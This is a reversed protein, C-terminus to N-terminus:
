DLTSSEIHKVTQNFFLTLLTAKLTGLGGEHRSTHLPQPAHWWRAALCQQHLMDWLLMAGVAAQHRIEVGDEAAGHHLRGVGSPVRPRKSVVQGHHALCLLLEVFSRCQFMLLLPALMYQEHSLSNM